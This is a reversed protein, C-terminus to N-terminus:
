KCRAISTSGLIKMVPVDQGVAKYVWNRIEVAALSDVGLESFSAEGNVSGAPHQLIAEVRRCFAAQLVETVDEANCGANEILQKVTQKNNNNNSEATGDTEDAVKDVTFHCFRRDLHWHLPRPDDVRYRALGTTLEGVQNPVSPRGAEIAEMFMHHLDRESIPPYGDRELGNYTAQRDERALLGLGYIVGINLASGALGRERRNMALGNMFMNAAAYNSQGAHGGIAAFSSTMIFFALDPGDFVVDLNRSGITKPGMVRTWTHIDMQSFVRDDLIMAANVVGGVQPMTKALRAQFARVNVLFTVDLQEVVINAGQANLEAVWNPRMDPNRSAIVINRAGQEIFLRCISQGLDRTLGVLVYTRDKRLCQPNAIPKVPLALTSDGVWNIMTSSPYQNSPNGLIQSPTSISFMEPKCNDQRCLVALADESALTWIEGIPQKGGPRTNGPTLPGDDETFLNALELYKFEGRMSTITKCLRNNRDLFNVVTYDDLSLATRVERTTSWPHMYIAEANDRVVQHDSSLVLMRRVSPANNAPHALLHRVCQLLTCDPEVLVLDQLGTHNVIATACMMHWLVTILHVKDVHDTLNKINRVFEPRVQIISASIESLGVVMRGSDSKRGLFIYLGKGGRIPVPHLSSYEVEVIVSGEKIIQSWDTSDVAEEMIGFSYRKAGKSDATEHLQVPTDLTNIKKTVVRRYANLRDIAPRYPLVRPIFFGRLGVHIEPEIQRNMAVLGDDLSIDDYYTCLRSFVKFIIDVSGSLRDFDLVQLTLNPTEAKLSRTLGLVSAQDPDDRAHKTVWLIVVGPRLLTKLVELSKANMSACISRDIDALLIVATCSAAVETTITELSAATSVHGCFRKLRAKLSANLSAYGKVQCGVVLLHKLVPMEPRLQSLRALERGAAQRVYLSGMDPYAQDCNRAMPPFDCDFRLWHPWDPPADPAHLATRSAKTTEPPPPMDVFILFGGERTMQRIRKLAALRDASNSRPLSSSSLIILDNLYQPDDEMTNNFYGDLTENKVKEHGKITPLIEVLAANVHRGINYSLFAGNLRELITQTFALDPETLDLIRMRPYKHAIQQVIHGVHKRFGPLQQAQKETLSPTPFKPGSSVGDSATTVLKPMESESDVPSEPPTPEHQLRPLRQPVTKRGKVSFPDMDGSGTSLVTVIEEDPDLEYVTHLYLEYDDAPKASAFSSVTLGELQIAMQGIKSYYVVIDSTIVAASETTHEKFSTLFVEVLVEDHDEFPNGGFM